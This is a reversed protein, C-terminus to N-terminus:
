AQPLDHRASLHSFGDDRQKAVFLCLPVYGFNLDLEEKRLDAKHSKHRKTALLRFLERRSLTYLGM